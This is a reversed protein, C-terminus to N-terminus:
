LKSQKPMKALQAQISWYQKPIDANSLNQLAVITGAQKATQYYWCNYDLVDLTQQLANMKEQLPLKQKEFLELREEITSDGELTLAIYKKYRKPVYGNKEPM